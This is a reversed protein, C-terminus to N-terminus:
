GWIWQLILSGVFVTVVFGILFGVTWVGAVYIGRGIKRWM